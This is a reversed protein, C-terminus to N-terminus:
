KVELETLTFETRPKRDYIKKAIMSCIIKDDKFLIDHSLDLLFKILNDLDSRNVHYLGYKRIGKSPYPMFFTVDLHLPCDFLPDNGHQQALYLGFSVKDQQQGDFFRKGNLRPRQWPIPPLNICYSKSRM